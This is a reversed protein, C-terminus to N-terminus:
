KKEELQTVYEEHYKLSIRKMSNEFDEPLSKQALAVGIMMMVLSSFAEEPSLENEEFINAIINAIAYTIELRTKM